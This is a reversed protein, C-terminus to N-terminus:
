ASQDSLRLQHLSPISSPKRNRLSKSLGLTSENTRKQFHFKSRYRSLPYECRGSTQVFADHRAPLSTGRSAPLFHCPSTQFNVLRHNSSVDAAIRNRGRYSIRKGTTVTTHAKTSKVSAAPGVFCVPLSFVECVSAGWLQLISCAGRVAEPWQNPILADKMAESVAQLVSIWLSMCFPGCFCVWVCECNNM